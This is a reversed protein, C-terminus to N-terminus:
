SERSVLMYKNGLHGFTVDSNKKTGKEVWSVDNKTVKYTYEHELPHM